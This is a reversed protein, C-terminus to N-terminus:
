GESEKWERGEGEGRWEVRPFDLLGLSPGSIYLTILVVYM